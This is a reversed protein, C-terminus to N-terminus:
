KILLFYHFCLLQLNSKKKLKKNGIVEYTGNDWADSGEAIKKFTLEKGEITDNAFTGGNKEGDVDELFIKTYM